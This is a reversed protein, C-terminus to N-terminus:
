QSGWNYMIMVPGWAGIPRVQQAVLPPQINKPCVHKPFAGGTCTSAVVDPKQPCIGKKPFAGGTCTSATKTNHLPRSSVPSPSVVPIAIISAVAIGWFIKM